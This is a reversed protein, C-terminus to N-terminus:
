QPAPGSTGREIVMGGIEAIQPTRKLPGYDPNLIHNVMNRAMTQMDFRYTSLTRERAGELDDYGLLSVQEPVAVRKSRLYDLAFLAIYDISCVWATISRDALAAEFLPICYSLIERDRYLERYLRHVHEVNASLLEPMVGGIDPFTPEGPRPKSEAVGLYDDNSSYEPKVFATVADEHGAKAYVGRIARLRARSWDAKHYPCIFAVRRHGHAYLYEGVDRGASETSATLFGRFLRRNPSHISPFRSGTSAVAVPLGYSLLRDYQEGFHLFNSFSVLHGIVPERPHHAFWELGEERSVLKLRFDSLISERELVNLFQSYRPDQTRSQEGGETGHTLLLVLARSSRTGRGGARQRATTLRSLHYTGGYVALTGDGVLTDLARKLTRYDVGYRATLQKLQPLPRGPEFVGLVIDREVQESLQRWKPKPSVVPEDPIGAVSLGRGKVVELVGEGELVHAAKLMSVHSVGSAASLVRVSPLRGRTHSAVQVRLFDIAKQVAPGHAM